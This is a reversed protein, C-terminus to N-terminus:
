SDAIATRRDPAPVAFHWKRFHRTFRKIWDVYAKRTRLGFYKLRIKGRVWDQLGSAVVPETQAPIPNM